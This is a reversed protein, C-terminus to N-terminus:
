VCLHILHPAKFETILPLEEKTKYILFTGLCM